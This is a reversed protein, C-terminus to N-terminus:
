VLIERDVVFFNQEEARLQMICPFQPIVVKYVEHRDHFRSNGFIASGSHKVEVIATGELIFLHFEKSGSDTRDDVIVLGISWGLLGFNFPPEARHLVM